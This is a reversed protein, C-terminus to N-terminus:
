VKPDAPRPSERGCAADATNVAATLAMELEHKLRVMAADDADRPVVVPSSIAFVGRGFPLPMLMRDWSRLQRGRVVSFAAPMIPAGTLRALMLVGPMARMRPGRPGDPTIAAWGGGRMWGVM